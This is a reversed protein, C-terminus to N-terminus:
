GKYEPNSEKVLALPYDPEEEGYADQLRNGSFSTWAEREVDGSDIVSVIVREGQHVDIPGALELHTSDIVRAEVVVM